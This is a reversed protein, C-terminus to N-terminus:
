KRGRKKASKKEPPNDLGLDPQETEAVAEAKPDPEAKSEPEAKVETPALEGEEAVEDEAVPKETPFFSELSEGNNHAQWIGFLTELETPGLDEVSEARFLWLVRELVIGKKALEQIADHLRAQVGKHGKGGATAKNMAAAYVRDVYIKPIVKFVANRFAVAVANQSAMAEADQGSGYIRRKSSMKMATNNELDWVAVRACAYWARDRQSQEVWEEEPAIRLNSWCMAMIEALRVSPGTIAIPNGDKDKKPLSYACAQATGEDSTANEIAFQTAEDPDRRNEPLRATMVQIDVDSRGGSQAVVATGTVRSPRNM